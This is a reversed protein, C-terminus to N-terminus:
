IHRRSPGNGAQKLINEIETEFTLSRDLPVGLYKVCSPPEILHDDVRLTLTKTLFSIARKCFILFETKTKKLNLRHCQFFHVMKSINLELHCIAEEIHENAVFLFTDDAYHVLECPKIIPNIM